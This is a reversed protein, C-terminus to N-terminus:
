EQSESGAGTEADIFDGGQEAFAPHTLHIPRRVGLQFTLDRNLDQWGRERSIGIPERAKLAFRFHEGREIMRVDGGDVPKFFTRAGGREDHFEDLAVIERLADRAARNRPPEGGVNDAAKAGPPTIRRDGHCTLFRSACTKWAHEKLWESM